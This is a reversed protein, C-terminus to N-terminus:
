MVGVFMTATGSSGFAEFAFGAVEGYVTLVAARVIGAGGAELYEGKAIAAASATVEVRGYVCCRFSVGDASAAEIAVGFKGVDDAAVPDWKGDDLEVHVLDGKAVAAGATVFVVIAEEGKIDGAAM